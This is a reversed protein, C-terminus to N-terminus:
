THVMEKAKALHGLLENKTEERRLELGVLVRLEDSGTVLGCLFELPCLRELFLMIYTSRDETLDRLM